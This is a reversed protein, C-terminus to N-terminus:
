PDRYVFDALIPEKLGPRYVEIRILYRGPIRFDFFGGYASGGSVQMRELPRRVHDMGGRSISANVAADGISKGSDKETLSVVFHDRGARPDAPRTTEAAHGPPGSPLQAGPVMGVRIVIGSVTRESPAMQALAAPGFSALAALLIARVVYPTM